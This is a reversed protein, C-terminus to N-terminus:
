ANIYARGMATLAGKTDQLDRHPNYTSNYIRAIYAYKHVETKAELYTVMSKIFAPGGAKNNNNGDRGFETIWVPTYKGGKYSTFADISGQVSAPDAAYPHFAYADFTCGGNCAAVFQDLWDLGLGSGVGSTVAPAVLLKGQSRLPEFYQKWLAAAVTPSLNSGDANPNDPENFGLVYKGATAASSALWSESGDDTRQMVYFKMGKPVAGGTPLYKEYNYVWSVKGGNYVESVGTTEFYPWAIGRKGASTLSALSLVAFVTAALLSFSKM